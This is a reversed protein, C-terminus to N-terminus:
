YDDGGGPGLSVLEEILANYNEQEKLLDLMEGITIDRLAKGTAHVRGAVGDGAWYAMDCIGGIEVSALLLENYLDNVALRTVDDQDKLSDDWPEWRSKNM